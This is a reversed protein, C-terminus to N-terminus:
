QAGGKQRAAMAAVKYDVLLLGVGAAAMGIAFGLTFAAVTLCALSVVTGAV